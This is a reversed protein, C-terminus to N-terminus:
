KRYGWRELWEAKFRKQDDRYEKLTSLVEILEDVQDFDFPMYRDCTDKITFQGNGKGDEDSIELKYYYNLPVGYQSLGVFYEGM